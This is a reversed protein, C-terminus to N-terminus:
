TGVYLNLGDNHEHLHEYLTEQETHTIYLFFSFYVITVKNYHIGKNCQFQLQLYGKYPKKYNTNRMM